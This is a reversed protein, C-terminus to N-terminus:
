EAEETTIKWTVRGNTVTGVSKYTHKSDKMTLTITKLAKSGDDGDTAVEVKAKTTSESEATESLGDIGSSLTNATVQDALYKDLTEKAVTENQEVYAQEYYETTKDSVFLSVADNFSGLQNKVSSQSARNLVGNDGSLMAISIGALILLVIITIVLAILTIGGNKKLM